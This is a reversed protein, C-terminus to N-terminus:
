RCTTARVVDSGVGPAMQADRRTMSSRLRHPVPLSSTLDARTTTAGARAVAQLAVVACRGCRRAGVAVAFLCARSPRGSIRCCSTPPKLPAQVVLRGHAVWGVLAWGRLRVAVGRLARHARLHERGSPVHLSRVAWLTRPRLPRAAALHARDASSRHAHGLVRLPMPPDEFNGCGTARASSALSHRAVPICSQGSSFIAM